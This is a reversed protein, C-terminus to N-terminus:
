LEGGVGQPEVDTGAAPLGFLRPHDGLKSKAIVSTAPRVFFYSMVLDILTSLGLYLAFGRVPGVSLLYLITAGILSSADAKLITSYADTFSRDVVSRLTRGKRVDEKVNEFYVISSDMVVGISVVIGVIGALTLTLGWTQGLFAIISFLLGASLTLSVVTVLGLLRYYLLIYLAVIALGVGGAILGSQLAGSGLTASVTQVSQPEFQVPLAGFRLATAVDKARQETFDGTIQIQDRAFNAENIAPATLVTGDLVIALRGPGQGTGGGAPCEAGGSNCIQAAANFRDIGDAGGKFTPRVEWGGTQSLGATADEIADGTLLSPGLKYLEVSGDREPEGELTVEADVKDDKRPTIEASLQNELGVLEQFDPLSVDIGWENTPTFVTTTTVSITTTTTADQSPSGVSGRSRGRGSSESGAAGESSDGSATTPTVEISDGGAAAPDLTGEATADPTSNAIEQEFIQQATVGDPIELSARLEEVKDKADAPASATVSLVPRFRLEATQGVLELAQQQDKIGPLQVVITSGQVTIDPEGVGIANVRREIIDKAQELAEASVDNTVEGDETAQLVVSVGGQLDLGLNPTNGFGLTAAVAALVVTFVAILPRLGKKGM